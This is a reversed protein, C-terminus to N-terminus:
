VYSNCLSSSQEILFPTTINAKLINDFFCRYSGFDGVQLCLWSSELQLKNLVTGVRKCNSVM